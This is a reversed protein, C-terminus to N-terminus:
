GIAVILAVSSKARVFEPVAVKVIFESCNDLPWANWMPVFVQPGVIAGPSLQETETVKM